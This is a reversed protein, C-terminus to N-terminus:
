ITDVYFINQKKKEKFFNDLIWVLVKFNKYYKKEIM